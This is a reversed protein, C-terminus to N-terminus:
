HFFLVSIKKNIFFALFFFIFFHETRKKLFGVDGSGFEVVVVVLVLHCNSIREEMVVALQIQSAIMIMGALIQVAIRAM